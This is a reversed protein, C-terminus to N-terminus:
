RETIRFGLALIAKVTEIATARDYDKESETLEEYPILCPHVKREDDRAGGRHWGEAMRRQAWVEHTNRALYETLEAIKRPLRVKSTDVPVPVYENTRM